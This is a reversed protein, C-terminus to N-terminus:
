NFLGSEFGEDILHTNSDAAETALQDCIENETHGAHGKIWRM